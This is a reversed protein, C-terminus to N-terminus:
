QKHVITKIGKKNLTDSVAVAKNFSTFSGATVRYLTNKEPIEVRAVSAAHGHQRIKEALANANAENEFLGAQVYYTRKQPPPKKGEAKGPAPPPPCMKPNKLSLRNHLSKGPM